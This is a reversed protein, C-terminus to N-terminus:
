IPAPAAPIFLSSELRGVDAAARKGAQEGDDDNGHEELVSDDEGGDSACNGRLTAAGGRSGGDTRRADVRADECADLGREGGCAARAHVSKKEKEEM